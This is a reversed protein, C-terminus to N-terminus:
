SVFDGIPLDRTPVRTKGAIGSVKESCVGSDVVIVMGEALPLIAIGLVRSSVVIIVESTIIASFIQTSITFTKSVTYGLFTTPITVGSIEMGGLVGVIADGIGAVKEEAKIAM